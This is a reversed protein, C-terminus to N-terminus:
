TNVQSHRSMAGAPNGWESIWPDFGAQPEGHSKAAQWTKRRRGTGHCGGQARLIKITTCVETHQSEVGSVLQLLIYTKRCMRLQNNEECSTKWRTTCNELHTECQRVIHSLTGARFRRNRQAELNAKRSVRRKDNM